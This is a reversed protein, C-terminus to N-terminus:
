KWTPDNLRWDYEVWDVRFSDADLWARTKESLYPRLFRLVAATKAGHRKVFARGEPDAKRWDDGYWDMLRSLRVVGSDRDIQLGAPSALYRKTALKFDAELTEVRYPRNLLIPCGRAACVLVMHIRPDGHNPRILEHEIQDLTVKKGLLDWTIKKWAGPIQLISGKPKGEDTTAIPFRDTILKLTFANYANVLFALREKEPWAEFRAKPTGSIAAVAANLDGPASRLKGYDVRGSESVAAALAKELASWRDEQASVSATLILAALFSTPRM